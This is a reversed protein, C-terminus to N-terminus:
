KKQLITTALVSYFHHSHADKDQELNLLFAKLKERNLIIDATLREYISKIIYFLTGDISMKTFTKIM